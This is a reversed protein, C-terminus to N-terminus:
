GPTAWSCSWIEHLGLVAGLRGWSPRLRGWSPGLVAWFAGLVYELRGLAGGLRGLLGGLGAVPAQPNGFGDRKMGSAEQVTVM